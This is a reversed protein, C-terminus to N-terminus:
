PACFTYEDAEVQPQDLGCLFCVWRCSGSPCDSVGFLCFRNCEGEYCGMTARCQSHSSCSGGEGVTGEPFCDSAWQGGGMHLPLCMSGSPCGANNWPECSLTCFSPAEGPMEQLFCSSGRGPCDADSSCRRRCLGYYCGAGAVCNGSTACRGGVPVDMSGGGGADVGSDIRGADTASGSDNGVSGADSGSSHGGDAGDRPNADRRPGGDRRAGGDLGTPPDNGFGGQACGSLV